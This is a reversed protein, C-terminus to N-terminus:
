TGMYELMMFQSRDQTSDAGASGDIVYFVDNQGVEVPATKPIVRISGTDPDGPDVASGGPSASSEAILVDDGSKIRYIRTQEYARLVAIKSVMSFKWKGPLLRFFTRERNSFSPPSDASLVPAIAQSPTLIEVWDYSGGFFTENKGWRLYVFNNNGSPRARHQVAGDDEDELRSQQLYGWLIVTPNRAYSSPSVGSEFSVAGM